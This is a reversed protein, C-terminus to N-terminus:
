KNMEYLKKDLIEVANRIADECSCLVKKTEIGKLDHCSLAGSMSIFEDVMDKSIFKTKTDTSNLLGLVINAGVLAGCTAKFGGMGSGFGSGLRRLTDDPLNILDKYTLLIAEACNFGNHKLYVANEKREELTM